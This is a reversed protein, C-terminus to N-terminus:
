FRREHKLSIKFFWLLASYTVAKNHCQVIQLIQPKGCSHVNLVGWIEVTADNPKASSLKCNLENLQLPQIM